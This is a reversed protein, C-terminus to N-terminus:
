QKAKSQYELLCANMQESMSQLADHWGKSLTSVMAPYGDDARTYTKKADGICINQYEKQLMWSFEVTSNGHYDSSFDSVKVALIFCELNEPCSAISHFNANYGHFYRFLSLTLLTSLDDIWKHQTTQIVEVDSVRYLLSTSDLYAPMSVPQVLLYAMKENSQAESLSPTVIDYYEFKQTSTCAVCFLCCLGCFVQILTLHM